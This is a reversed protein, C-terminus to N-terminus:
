PIAGRDAGVTPCEAHHLPADYQPFCAFRFLDVAFVLADSRLSAAQWGCLRHQGCDPFSAPSVMCWGCRTAALRAAARETGSGRAARACAGATASVPSTLEASSAAISPTSTPALLAPEFM